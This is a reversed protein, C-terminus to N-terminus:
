IDAGTTKVWVQSRRPLYVTIQSPKANPQEESWVGIKAGQKTPMVAFEGGAPMFVTGTVLLSDKDWGTVTVQGQHAFIRIFGSPVVARREHVKQQAFAAAHVGHLLMVAVLWRVVNSM